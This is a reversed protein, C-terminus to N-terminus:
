LSKPSRAEHEAVIEACLAVCEACICTNPGAILTNVESQLKGCFGCQQPSDADGAPHLNMARVIAQQYSLVSAGNAKLRDDPVLDKLIQVRYGRKIRKRVLWRSISKSKRYGLHLSDTIRVFYPKDRVELRKRMERTQLNFTMM